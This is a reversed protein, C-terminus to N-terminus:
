RKFSENHLAAVGRPSSMFSRLEKENRAPNGGKLFGARLEGLVIPSLLIQSAEQLAGQVGEHGRM